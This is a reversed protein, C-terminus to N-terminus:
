LFCQLMRGYGRGLWTYGPQTCAIRESKNTAAVAGSAHGSSARCSVKLSKLILLKVTHSSNYSQQIITSNYVLTPSWLGM